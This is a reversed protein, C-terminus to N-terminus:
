ERIFQGIQFEKLKRITGPGLLLSLLLATLSAFATRLTIYRFLNFLHFQTHFKLYFFYFM